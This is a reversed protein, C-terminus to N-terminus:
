GDITESKSLIKAHFSAVNDGTELFKINLIVWIKQHHFFITLLNTMLWHQSRSNRCRIFAFNSCCM